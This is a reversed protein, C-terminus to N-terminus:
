TGRRHRWRRLAAELADRMVLKFEAMQKLRDRTSGSAISEAGARLLEALAELLRNQETQMGEDNDSAAYVIRKSGREGLRRLLTSQESLRAAVSASSKSIELDVAMRDLSIPEPTLLLAGYLRAAKEPVGWPAM